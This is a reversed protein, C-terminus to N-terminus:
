RVKRDQIEKKQEEEEKIKQELGEIGGSVMVYTFYSIHMNNNPLNYM